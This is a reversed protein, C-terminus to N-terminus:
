GYVVYTCGYTGTSTGFTFGTDTISRIAATTKNGITYTSWSNVYEAVTASLVDEFYIHTANGYGVDPISSNSSRRVYIVKPRFGVDITTISPGCTFTGTACRSSSNSINVVCSSQLLCGYATATWDILIEYLGSLESVDFIATGTGISQQNTKTGQTISAGSISINRISVKESSPYSGGKKFFRSVSINDVNTVDVIFSSSTQATGSESVSISAYM